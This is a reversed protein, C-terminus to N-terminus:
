MVKYYSAIVKTFASWDTTPVYETAFSGCYLMSGLESIIITM